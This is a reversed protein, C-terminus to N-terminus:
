RADRAPERHVGRSRFGCGLNGTYSKLAVVPVEGGRDGMADRIAGAEDIDCSRTALGHASVHGVLSPSANAKGLTQQIADDLAARRDAHRDHSRVCTVATAEVVGHIKAGRKLASKEDELVIAGAGEGLVMGDRGSDFPRSAESPERSSGAVEEQTRTQLTRVPHLRTGTAGVLVLDARGQSILRAACDVSANFSAERNTLSNSPGQFNNVIAIHSAPMNPLYKLLWLPNVRPMAKSTWEAFEIRGNRNVCAEVPAAFEDPLTAIYDSGYCTGSRDPPLDGFGVGAHDLAHQASAVAYQIERSMVKLSKRLVKKQASALDGFESIHGTFDAVEGGYLIGIDGPSLTELPVVGSRGEQLAERLSGLDCGLPSVVGMGTIVVRRRDSVM